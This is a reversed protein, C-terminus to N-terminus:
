NLIDQLILMESDVNLPVKNPQPTNIKRFALRALPQTKLHHMEPAHHNDIPEYTTAFHNDLPICTTAFHHM